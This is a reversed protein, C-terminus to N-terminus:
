VPSGGTVVHAVPLEVGVVVCGEDFADVLQSGGAEAVAGDFAFDANAVGGDALDEVVPDIEALDAESVLVEGADVLGEDGGLEEGGGVSTVDGSATSAAVWEGSPDAAPQAFSEDGDVVVLSALGQETAPVAAFPAGL